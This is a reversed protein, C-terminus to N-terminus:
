ILLTIYDYTYTNIHIPVQGYAFITGNFGDLAQQVIPSGLDRYVDTQQSDAFCHYLYLHLYPYLCLYMNPTHVYTYTYSTHVLIYWYM